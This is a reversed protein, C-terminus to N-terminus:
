PSISQSVSQIISQSVSQSVSQIISRDISRNISQNISQNIITRHKSLQETQGTLKAIVKFAVFFLSVQGPISQWHYWTASMPVYKKNKEHGGPTPSGYLLSTPARGHWSRTKHAQGM